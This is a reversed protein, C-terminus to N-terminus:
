IGQGSLAKESFEDAAQFGQAKLDQIHLKNYFGAFIIQFVLPAIGYTFMGLLLTVGFTIGFWKWDGKFLPVFWGFFFFLWSYGLKEQKTQMTNENKLNIHM